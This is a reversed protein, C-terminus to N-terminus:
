PECEQIDKEAQGRVSAMWISYAADAMRATQDEPWWAQPWDEDEHHEEIFKEISSELLAKLRTTM